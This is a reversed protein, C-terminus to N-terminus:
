DLLFLNLDNFFRTKSPLHLEDNRGGAVLIGNNCPLHCMTHGFRPEPPIGTAKAARFEGHVVVGNVVKPKFYRLKNSLEGKM